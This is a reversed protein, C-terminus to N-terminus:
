QGIEFSHSIEFLIDRYNDFEEKALAFTLIYGQQERLHFFQLEIIEYGIMVASFIHYNDKREIIKIDPMLKKIGELSYQYYEDLTFDRDLNERHLSGTVVYEPSILEYLNLVTAYSVRWDAPVDLSTNDVEIKTAEYAFLTMTLFGFFACLRVINLRDGSISDPAVREEAEIQRWDLNYCM